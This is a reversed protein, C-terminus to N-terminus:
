ITTIVIPVGSGVLEVGAIRASGSVTVRLGEGDPVATITTDGDLDSVTTRIEGSEGSRSRSGTHPGFAGGVGYAVLTIEGFPGDGVTGGPETLVPVIAGRRAFLPVRDLPTAVTVYRGGPLIEGTWHDVWEGEPLYVKRVQEPSTMPAVLLDRGLLYQLDAQWAVPDDPYDVCLARMMPAGTRAAEVAATYIYPM